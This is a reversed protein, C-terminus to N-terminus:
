LHLLMSSMSTTINAELKASWWEEMFSWLNLVPIFYWIYSKNWVIPCFSFLISGHCSHVTTDHQIAFFFQSNTWGKPVFERSRSDQIISSAACEWTKFLRSIRNVQDDSSEGAITNQHTIAGHQQLGQKAVTVTVFSYRPGPAPSEFKKGRSNRKKYINIERVSVLSM